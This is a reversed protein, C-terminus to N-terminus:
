AEQVARACRTIIMAQELSQENLWALTKSPNKSAQSLPGQHTQLDGAKSILTITDGMIDIQVKQLEAPEAKSNIHHGQIKGNDYTIIRQISKEEFSLTKNQTIRIARRESEEIVTGAPAQEAKKCLENQRNSWSTVSKIIETDSMSQGVLKQITERTGSATIGATIAEETSMEPHVEIKGANWSYLQSTLHLYVRLATLSASCLIFKESFAEKVMESYDGSIEKILKTIEEPKGTIVGDEFELEQFGIESKWSTWNEIIEKHKEAEWPLLLESYRHKEPIIEALAAKTEDRIKSIMGPPANKVTTGLRILKEVKTKM